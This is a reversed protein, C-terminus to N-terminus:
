RMGSSKLKTRICTSNKINKWKTRFGSVFVRTVRLSMGSKYLHMHEDKLEVLNKFRVCICKNNNLKNWKIKLGTVFVRLSDCSVGNLFNEVSNDLLLHM